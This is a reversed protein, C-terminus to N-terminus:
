VRLLDAPPDIPWLKAYAAGKRDPAGIRELFAFRACEAQTEINLGEFGRPGPTQRYAAAGLASLKAAALVVGRQAQWVHALEHVLWGQAVIPARTFDAAARWASFVITNRLPAMAGFGMPPAQVLRVARYNVEDAFALRALAIEGASLARRAFLAMSRESQM